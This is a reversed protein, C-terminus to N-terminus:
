HCIVQKSRGLVDELAAMDRKEGSTYKLIYIPIIDPLPEDYSYGELMDLLGNKIYLLFGAGNKLGPIEATVDGFRLNIDRIQLLVRVEFYTYFGTGTMERRRVYCFELQSYLQTLLPHTGQLLKELVAQEFEDLNIM